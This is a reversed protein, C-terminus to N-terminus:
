KMMVKAVKNGVKVILIGKTDIAIENIGGTAVSRHLNQGMTNYIEVKEGEEASFNVLGNSAYATLNEMQNAFIGSIVNSTNSPNPAVARFDNGINQTYTYKNVDLIRSASTANSLQDMASTWIPVASAGYPVYDVFNANEIISSLNSITQLESTKYLIVKGVTGGLGLSSVADPAPLDETGGVGAACQILYHARPPIITNAPFVFTNSATAEGTATAAYYQISWGSIDKGEQTNNFLEIFDNKLTAGSNGGAGYVETILVDPTGFNQNINRFSFNIVGNAEVIDRAEKYIRSGNRLYFEYNNINFSGPFPDGPLTQISAIGDAEIIDLGMRNFVNNPSNNNWDQANYNVRFVLMGHGPLFADFSTKQRNELMFFEKPFPNNAILNHTETSSVLYAENSTILSNLTLDQDSTILTPTLYGLSFREFSNYTPPTRGENLYPGADMVDWFSLTHHNAGNTAYFDPLGIVHGFEHVFTGIGCMRTDSSGKLESTCAYDFLRKGDFTVSATTGSYTAGPIVMWRHPWVTDAGGGEAENYGAYYIFVNDLRGDGDTDYITFDLGDEDALRCADVVMGTPNRDNGHNDNGGYSSMSGPLKYPGIVDFSPTFEGNSAVRFYDAASGTGGNASYNEQNLLNTFSQLPNQVVYDVDSFEVLIVLSRPSGTTPFKSPNPLVNSSRKARMLENTKSFDPNKRFNAIQMSEAASRKSVDNAKIGTDIIDGNQNIRAYNFIDNEGKTILYGDETLYYHHFEDGKMMVTISTGDPQNVVIPFPYAPVATAQHVFACLLATLFLLKIKKM